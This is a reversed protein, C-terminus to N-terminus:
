FAIACRLRLAFAYFKSLTKVEHGPIMQGFKLLIPDFNAFNHGHVTKVKILTLKSRPRKDLDIVEPADSM